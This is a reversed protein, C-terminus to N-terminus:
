PVTTPFAFWRGSVHHIHCFIVLYLVTVSAYSIFEWGKGAVLILAVTVGDQKLGHYDYDKVYCWNSAAYPAYGLKDTVLLPVIIVLPVGWAIINYVPVLKGAFQFRRFVIILFFHFALIVTWCFSVLSSWSTITAQTKCLILFVDCDSSDRKEFHTLFNVSGLIYGIASILDAVALFTIIKQTTTRLDKLLCFTLLILLSGLCSLTCSVLSVYSPSVGIDFSVLDVSGSEATGNCNFSRPCTANWTKM